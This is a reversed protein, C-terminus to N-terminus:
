SCFSLWFYCLLILLSSTSILNRMKWLQNNTFTCHSSLFLFFRTHQESNCQYIMLLILFPYLLIYIDWTHPDPPLPPHSSLYKNLAMWDQKVVCNGFGTSNKINYLFLYIPSTLIFYFIGEQYLSWYTKPFNFSM